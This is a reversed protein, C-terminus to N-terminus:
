QYMFINITSSLVDISFYKFCLAESYLKGSYVSETFEFGMEGLRSGPGILGLHQM